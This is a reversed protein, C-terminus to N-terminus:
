KRRHPCAPNNICENPILLRQVPRNNVIHSDIIEDVDNLTVGGYWVVEPYVVVVPGHECQDLCGAKNARVNGKIGLKSIKTKFARHLDGSKTPDCSGRPHDPSRDNTCIFIHKEFLAM